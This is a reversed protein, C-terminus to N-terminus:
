GRSIVLVMQARYTNVNIRKHIQIGVQALSIKVSGHLFYEFSKFKKSDRGTEDVGRSKIPSKHVM